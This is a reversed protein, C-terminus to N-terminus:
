RVVEPSVEVGGELFRLTPENGPAYLEIAYVYEPLTLSATQEATFYISVKGTEIDLEPEIELALEAEPTERIQMLSTYGTLDFVSGDDNTYEFERQFTAGADIHLKYRVAM